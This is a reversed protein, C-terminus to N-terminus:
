AYYDVLRESSVKAATASTMISDGVDSVNGSRDDARGSGGRHGAFQERASQQGASSDGVSVNVQNMGQQTFMERLRFMQSELAERVSANQSVFQVQQEQGRQQIHIELPGLEAPDLHIEVSRLNQSSAWMVKEVMAEGWGQQGFPVGLAQAPATVPRATLAAQAVPQGAVTPRSSTDISDSEASSAKVGAELQEALKGAFAVSEAPAAAAPNNRLSPQGADAGFRSNAKRQDDTALIQDPSEATGEGAEPSATGTGNATAALTLHGPAALSVDAEAGPDTTGLSAITASLAAVDSAEEGTEATPLAVDPDVEAAEPDVLTLRSESLWSFWQDSEDQLADEAAAADVPLAGKEGPELSALHDFWHQVSEPLPKGDAALKTGGEALEGTIGLQDLVAQIKARDQGALLAAFDEVADGSAADAAGAPASPGSSVAGPATFLAMMPQSVSM